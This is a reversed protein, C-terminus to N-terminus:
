EDNGKVNLLLRTFSGRLQRKNHLYEQKICFRPGFRVFTNTICQHFAEYACHFITFFVKNKLHKGVIKCLCLPLKDDGFGNFRKVLWRM